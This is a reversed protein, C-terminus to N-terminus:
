ISRPFPYPFYRRPVSIAATATLIGRGYSPGSPSLNRPRGKHQTSARGRPFRRTRARGINSTGKFNARRVGM